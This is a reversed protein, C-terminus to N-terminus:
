KYSLFYKGPAKGRNTIKIEKSYVKSNAVLTGFDVDRKMELQCTPILRRSSLSWMIFKLLLLKTTLDVPICIFVSM